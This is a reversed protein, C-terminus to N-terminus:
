RLSCQFSRTRTAGLLSKWKSCGGTTVRLKALGRQLAKMADNDIPEELWGM